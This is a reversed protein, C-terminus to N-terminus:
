MCVESHRIRLHKEYLEKHYFGSICLECRFKVKNKYRDAQRDSERKAQMEEETMEIVIYNDKSVGLKTERKKAKRTSEQSEFIDLENEKLKAKKTRKNNDKRKENTSNSSKNISKSENLKRKRTKRPETLEQVPEITSVILEPM